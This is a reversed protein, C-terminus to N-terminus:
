YSLAFLFFPRFILDGSEARARLTISDVPVAGSQGDRACETADRVAVNESGERALRTADAVLLRQSRSLNVTDMMATHHASELDGICGGDPNRASASTAAVSKEKQQKSLRKGAVCRDFPAIFGRSSAESLVVSHSEDVLRELRGVPRRHRYLISKVVGCPGFFLFTQGPSPLAVARDTPEFTQDRPKVRSYEIDPIARDAQFQFFSNRLFNEPDGDESRLQNLLMNYSLHFASNLSDASGKLMSKAVAPEMKEDVMLICIVRKDIGRRGARGSMQIYEGSSLWRFKDGDFKRVNTFVVTKAPM